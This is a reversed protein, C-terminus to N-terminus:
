NILAAMLIFLQYMFPELATRGVSSEVVISVNDASGLVAAVLRM